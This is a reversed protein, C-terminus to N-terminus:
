RVPRFQVKDSGRILFADYKAKRWSERQPRGAAIQNAWWQPRDASAPLKSGLILEIENFTLEIERHQQQLLYDRLPDYKSM